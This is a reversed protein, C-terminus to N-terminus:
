PTALLLSEDVCRGALRVLDPCVSKWRPRMAYVSALRLLTTAEYFRLRQFFPRDNQRGLGEILAESCARVGAADADSLGQLRRLALHALLNAPDVACDSLCLSDFDLLAPDGAGFLFQRDHLDRHCPVLEVAAGPILRELRLRVDSWHRPEHESIALLRAHVKDLIGLEDTACHHELAISTRGAQMQGLCKGIAKFGDADERSLRPPIGTLHTMGFACSKADVDLLDPVQFGGNANLELAARHRDLASAFRHKRFGKRVEEGDRRSTRLVMRRQPRWGLIEVSESPRQAAWAALGLLEDELPSLREVREGRVAFWCSQEAVEFLLDGNRDVDARRINAHVLPDDLETGLRALARDLASGKKM